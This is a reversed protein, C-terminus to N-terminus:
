VYKKYGTPLISFNNSVIPFGATSVSNFGYGGTPWVISIGSSGHLLGAWQAFGLSLPWRPDLRGV